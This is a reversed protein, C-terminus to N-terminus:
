EEPDFRNSQSLADGADFLAKSLAHVLTTPIRRTASADVSMLALGTVVIGQDIPHSLLIPMFRADIATWASRPEASTDNGSQTTDEEEIAETLLKAVLDDMELWPTPSGLQAALTAESQQMLYLFGSDSRTARGLLQLACLSREASGRAKGLASSVTTQVDASELARLDAATTDAPEILGAARAASMLKAHRALLGNQTGLRYQAECASAYERFAAEDAMFLAIYARVEYARGLGVGAGGEASLTTIATQIHRVADAHLGLRSEALALPTYV